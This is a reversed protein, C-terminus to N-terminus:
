LDPFTQVGPLAVAMESIMRMVLMVLFGAM